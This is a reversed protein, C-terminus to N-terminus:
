DDLYESVQGSDTYEVYDTGELDAPTAAIAASGDPGCWVIDDSAIRDAALAEAILRRIGKTHSEWASMWVTEM